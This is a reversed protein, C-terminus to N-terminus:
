HSTCDCLTSAFCGDPGGPPMYYTSSAATWPREMDVVVRQLLTALARCSPSLFM